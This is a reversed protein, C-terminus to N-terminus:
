FLSELEELTVPPHDRREVVVLPRDIEAVIQIESARMTRDCSCDSRPTVYNAIVAAVAVGRADLSRLLRSTERMVLPDPRTVVLAAVAPSKLAAAFSSLARSAALLEEGLASPPILEKYKLLLRMFEHVWETATKPLELLRLFHGTPATDVVVFAEERLLESLREIAFLEDAGPPAIALLRKMVDTDHALSVGKPTLADIANEIADGLSERLRRWLLRTDITEVTLNDPPKEHAFVDRVSHAPDVSLLVVRRGSGALKLAISASSTTKGVGGKGAVFLMRTEPPLALPGSSPPAESVAAVRPDALEGRLYAELREATGLPSCARPARVIAIGAPLAAISRSEREAANRCRACDCDHVARNLIALPVAISENRVAGILRKTQEVVWPESLFVTLFGSQKPDTIIAHRREADARFQELFQDMADRVRRRALQAVLERHKSQMSELAEGFQEFHASS